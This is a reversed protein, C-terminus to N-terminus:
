FTLGLHERDLYYFFCFLSSLPSYVIPSISWSFIDSPYSNGSQSPGGLSWLFFTSAFIWMITCWWSIESFWSYLSVGLLKCPPFFISWSEFNCVEWSCCKSALLYHLPMWFESQFSKWNPIRHEALSHILHTSFLCLAKLQNFHSLIHEPDRFTSLLWKEKTHM